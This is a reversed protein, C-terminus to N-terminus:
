AFKRDEDDFKPGGLREFNRRMAEELPPNPVLNRMACVMRSEVSTGSMLAAGAAIDNVWAIIPLLMAADTGRVMYRITTAAQVVNPAIGGADVYAYHVRAASPIHERM